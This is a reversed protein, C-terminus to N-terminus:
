SEGDLPFLLQADEPPSPLGSIPIVELDLAGALKAIDGDDSYITAQQHVRAIAIIQRDFKLKARPATTGARLDGRELAERTM